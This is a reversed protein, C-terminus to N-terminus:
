AAARQDSMSICDARNEIRVLRLRPQNHL